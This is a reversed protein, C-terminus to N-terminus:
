EHKFEIMNFNFNHSPIWKEDHHKHQNTLLANKLTNKFNTLSKSPDISLKPQLSNWIVSSKYSFHSNPTPTTITQSTTRTSFKYQSHIGIPTQFKIIKFTELLCHYTYLNNIALIGHKKCLPKTHEKAYFEAGLIQHDITRARCCTKFKDVYANYDGFMIRICKKQIILLESLKSDQIGGWVSICYSLHSEFLTYYLDKHLAEPIFKKIRSLTAISYNLKRKFEKINCDWNLNEDIHVGLFKTSDVKKIPRNNIRLQLSSESDLQGTKNRTTPRFHMFCCKSQNIHLKNLYMYINLSNLLLNAKSYAEKATNGSVFINTDDAFLVFEGHKSCNIIDNIYILFLLPGLVSGQPVGYKVVLKNSQHNLVDTYQLRNTLYSKLLSHATGRIGYHQLKHLLTEHDITDFAKSLDIFIGLVHYKKQLASEIQSISFNLAHSTSHAKRFGYQNSHLINQSILFSYIRRYIIKEYIKGFIPLTSIPRYNEILESNGKKYVPTIKGVKLKEPFKGSEMLQNFIQSLPDAILHASKKIVKIPIDSAKGNQLESIIENIEFCTCEELFISNTNSPNLFDTFSQFQSKNLNIEDMNSNLESAISIFYKNFANAIARREIIKKNDIHFPPRIEHKNIGRLENIIKWTKKPDEKNDRIKSCKFSQKAQNIIHKLTKRYFSFQEYLKRDGEPSKKTITNTWETKLEYKRNVSEIIGDTIWPNNHPNRKTTKPVKLKCHKDLTSSYTNVFDDFNHCSTSM